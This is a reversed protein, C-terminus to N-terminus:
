EQHGGHGAGHGAGHGMHEHHTRQEASLLAVASQGTRLMDLKCDVRLGAARRLQAEYTAADPTALSLAAAAAAEAAKVQAMREACAEGHAAQLAELRQVQDATLSLAEAHQLLMKPMNRHLPDQMHGAHEGEGGAGHSAHMACKGGGEQGHAHAQGQAQGHMHGQAHAAPAAVFFAGLALTAFIRTM